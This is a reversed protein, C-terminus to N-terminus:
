LSLSFNDEEGSIRFSSYEAFLEKGEHRADIRLEYPHADTLKHIAENGIWFDGTLSGFGDRYSTWDRYFDVDGKARRQIVIWGGGDTHTDCLIEEKPGDHAMVVYPPYQ